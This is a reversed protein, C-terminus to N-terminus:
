QSKTMIMQPIIIEVRYHQEDRITKLTAAKGYHLQLRHEINDLAIHNGSDVENSPVSAVPNELVISISRDERRSKNATKISSSICLCISGGDPLGQVGHIIANELLPQLFLSPVMTEPLNDDINWIMHLREGLRQQEIAIYRRCLDIEEKLNVLSPQQLSSRFLSSLDEVTKEAAQPNIGILSAITNMSNFLFHPRIRSQLSQLRAQLEAQQQNSLQQQLYLYRLLIGSFIAGILFGKFWTLVNFPELSVLQAATLVLAVILLCIGYSLLGSWLPKLRNIFRRTQCLVLASGLIIWQVVLSITGLASWSFPSVTVSVGGRALLLVIALLEGILVLSLIAAPQCLYPLLPLPLSHSKDM